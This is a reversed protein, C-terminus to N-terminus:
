WCIILTMESPFPIIFLAPNLKPLKRWRLRIKLKACIRFAAWSHAEIPYQSLNQSKEKGRKSRGRSTIKWGNKPGNITCCLNICTTASIEWCIKQKLSALNKLQPRDQGLFSNNGKMTTPWFPVAIKLFIRKAARSMETTVTPSNLNTWLLPTSPAKGLLLDIWSHIEEQISLFNGTKSANVNIFEESLKRKKSTISRLDCSYKDFSIM